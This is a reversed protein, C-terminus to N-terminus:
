RSVGEELIIAGKVELSREFLVDEEWGREPGMFLRSVNRLTVRVARCRRRGTGRPIDIEVEGNLERAGDGRELDAVSTAQGHEQDPAPRTMFVGGHSPVNIYIRPGRRSPSSARSGTRSQNRLFGFM